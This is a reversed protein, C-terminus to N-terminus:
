GDYSVVHEFPAKYYFIKDQWDTVDTDQRNDIVLCTYEDKTYKIFIKFFEEWSPVINGYINYNRKINSIIENRFLFIFDTNDRIEPKESLLLQKTQIFMINFNRGNMFLNMFNNDKKYSDDYYICDSVFLMPDLQKGDEVDKKRDTLIDEYDQSCIEYKIDANPFHKQYLPEEECTYIKTNTSTITSTNFNKILDCALVSKGTRRKGIIIVTCNQSLLSLPFQKM